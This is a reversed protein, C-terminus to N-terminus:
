VEWPSREMIDVVHLIFDHWTMEGKQKKIRVMEADEFYVSIPKM